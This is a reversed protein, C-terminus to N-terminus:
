ILFKSQVRCCAVSFTPLPLEIGFGVSGEWAGQGDVFSGELFVEASRSNHSVLHFGLCIFSSSLLSLDYRASFPGLFFIPSLSVLLITQSSVVLDSSPLSYVM